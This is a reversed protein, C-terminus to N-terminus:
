FSSREVIVSRQGESLVLTSPLDICALFTDYNKLDKRREFKMVMEKLIKISFSFFIAIKVELNTLKKLFAVNFLIYM